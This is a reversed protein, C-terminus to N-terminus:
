SGRGAARLASAISASLGARFRAPAFREANARMASTDWLRALARGIAAAVAAPTQTDFLEATVGPIMTERLGCQSYGIVPAGHANAELPAIGFDEEACFVFAACTSLLEGAAEESVEGLFRTRAGAMKELHARQPGDGAIVLELGLSEAAAIALDIRKYTVLRGLSLLFSGRPGTPARGKKLSVPPYVVDADRGYARRVRDAVCESIGVFRDVDRTSWRDVRRLAGTAATLALRQLGGASRYTDSLDWLYRPPSYCYCVHVATPGRRVSKSFAHSSSLVLDYGRTDLTAFAAAELPLFWRHHSRALPLKGLWTETARRSVENYDRMAPTMVGVVLDADPFIRLMEEVCRESGAWTVLWDHVILVRLGALERPAM